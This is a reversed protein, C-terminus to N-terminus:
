YFWLLYTQYPYKLSKDNLFIKFMLLSYCVAISGPTESNWNPPPPTVLALYPYFCDRTKVGMGRFYFDMLILEIKINEICSTKLKRLLADEFKFYTIQFLVEPFGYAAEISKVAAELKWQDIVFENILYQSIDMCENKYTKKPPPPNRSQNPNTIKAKEYLPLDNIM